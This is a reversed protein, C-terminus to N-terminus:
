FKWISESMPASEKPHKRTWWMLYHLNSCFQALPGESTAIELGEAFPAGCETCIGTGTHAPEINGDWPIRRYGGEYLGSAYIPGVPESTRTHWNECYTWHDGLVLVSRIRCFPLENEDPAPNRWQGWNRRNFGCTGCNDPGGNPM